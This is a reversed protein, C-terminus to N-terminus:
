LYRLPDKMYRYALRKVESNMTASFCLTQRKKSTEKIISEVDNKFGMLLMQDAEDLVLTKLKSLDITKREIHDLLRGPTAIVLHINGKLKKLQSGIDKGGYAAM